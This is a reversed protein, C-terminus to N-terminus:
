KKPSVLRSIAKLFTERQVPWALARYVEQGKEVLAHVEAPNEFVWQIKEALEEEENGWPFFLM